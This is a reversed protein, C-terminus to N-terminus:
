SWELAQRARRLDNGEMALDEAQMGHLRLFTQTGSPAACATVFAERVEHLEMMPGGGPTRYISRLQAGQANLMTLASRPFAELVGADVQVKLNDVLVNRVNALTCYSPQRAFCTIRDDKPNITGGAHKKRDRYDFPRTVRFIVNQLTLNEIPSERMGQMLIGNDSHIYINTLLVDRIAGIRSDDNRKEIDLFIPYIMNRLREPSVQSPDRLTEITLNSVTVGDIAGGDKIFFGVGVTSNRVTCNSIAINRYDGASGTGLKIATAISETTCNTVVIDECPIGSHTKLCICDDGATIHCNSIRVDRCSDPDIGDSNTRFFNNFITVGDVVVKECRKLHCAWSDSYLITFDRLTVYRCDELFMVRTRFHPRPEDAAGPRRGLDQTGQGHLVGPGLVSIHEAKQASILQWASDKYDERNTSAYVTAGAELYLTVRSKLFLSGCLYNGPSVYVAGGGAAHCADIAAQFPVTDNTTRDGRAGFGRVDYPGRCSAGAASPAAGQARAAGTVVTGGLFSRRRMWNQDNDSFM